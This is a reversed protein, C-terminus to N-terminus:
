TSEIEYQAEEISQDKTIEGFMDLKANKYFSRSQKSVLFYRCIMTMKIRAIDPVSAKYDCYIITKFVYTALQQVTKSMVADNGPNLSLLSVLDQM